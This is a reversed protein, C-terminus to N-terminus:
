TEKPGPLAIVPTTEAGPLLPPMRKTRYAEDIQPAAWDLVTQNNPLVLQATFVETTLAGLDVTGPEEDQMEARDALEELRAKIRLLLSRWRQREDAEWMTRRLSAPREKYKYNGEDHLYRTDDLDPIRTEFRIHRGHLGFEIVLRGGHEGIVRGDAGHKKLLAKMEQETKDASVTTQAAYRRTPQRGTTM